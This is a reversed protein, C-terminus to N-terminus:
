LALEEARIDDIDGEKTDEATQKTKPNHPSHMVLLGPLHCQEGARFGCHGGCLAALVPM